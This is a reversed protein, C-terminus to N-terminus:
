QFIPVSNAAPMSSLIQAMAPQQKLKEKGGWMLAAMELCDRHSLIQLRDIM